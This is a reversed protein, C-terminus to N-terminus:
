DSSYATNTYRATTGESEDLGTWKLHEKGLAKWNERNCFAERIMCDYAANRMFRKLDSLGVGELM